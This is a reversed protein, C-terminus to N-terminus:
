FQRPRASALLNFPPCKPIPRTRLLVRVKEGQTIAPPRDVFDQMSENNCAHAREHVDSLVGHAHISRFQALGIQRAQDFRATKVVDVDSFETHGALNAGFGNMRTSTSHDPVPVIPVNDRGVEAVIQVAEEIADLMGDRQHASFDIRGLTMAMPQEHCQFLSPQLAEIESVDPLPKAPIQKRESQQAQVTFRSGQVQLRLGFGPARRRCRSEGLEL